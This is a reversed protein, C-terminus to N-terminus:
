KLCRLANIHLFFYLLTLCRFLGASNATTCSEYSQKGILKRLQRLNIPVDYNM